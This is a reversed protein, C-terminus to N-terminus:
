LNMKLVVANHDSLDKHNKHWRKEFQKVLRYIFKPNVGNGKFFIFDIVSRKDPRYNQMDNLLHDSTFKLESSIEGDEAELAKLLHPYLLTDNKHTNFDGAAFQPVDKQEFQKLLEGAEIHQSLKIENGGGAQMHTGLVQFKKVPHQVEVLLAGKNAKCDIKRCKKYRISKLERMPYKSFMLVGGARNYTIVRRNETGCVFPYVKKLKRKLIRIALGDFAEQFVIVDPAEEKLKEPILKARRVPHHRLYFAGRPLMKINWSMISIQPPPITDTKENEKCIAFLPLAFFLFLM